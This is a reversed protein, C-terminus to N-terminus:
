VETLTAKMVLARSAGTRTATSRGGSGWGLHRCCITVLCPNPDRNVQTTTMCTQDQRVLGFQPLQLLKTAALLVNRVRIM